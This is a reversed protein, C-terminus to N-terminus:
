EGPAKKGSGDEGPLEEASEEYDTDFYEGIEKLTLAYVDDWTYGKRERRELAWIIARSLWLGGLDEFAKKFKREIAEQEVGTLSDVSDELTPRDDTAM